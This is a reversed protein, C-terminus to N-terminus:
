YCVQPGQHGIDAMINLKSSNKIAWKLTESHKRFTPNNGLIVKESILLSM